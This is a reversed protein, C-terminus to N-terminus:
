LHQNQARATTANASLLHRFCGAKNATVCRRDGGGRKNCCAVQQSHCLLPGVVCQMFMCSMFAWCNKFTFEIDPALLKSGPLFATILCRSCASFSTSTEPKSCFITQLTLTLCQTGGGGDRNLTASKLNSKVPKLTKKKFRSTKMCKCLPATTTTTYDWSGPM